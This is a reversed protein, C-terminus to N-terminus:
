AQPASASMVRILLVSLADMRLSVQAPLSGATLLSVSQGDVVQELEYGAATPHGGGYREPTQALEM